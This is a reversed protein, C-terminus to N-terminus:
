ETIVIILPSKWLIIEIRQHFKDTKLNAKEIKLCVFLHKARSVLHKCNDNQNVPKFEM